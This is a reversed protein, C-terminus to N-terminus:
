TVLADPEVLGVHSRRPGRGPRRGRPDGDRHREADADPLGPHRLDADPDPRGDATPPRHDAGRDDAGPDAPDADAGDTPTKTPRGTNSPTETPTPTKTPKPPLPRSTARPRTGRRRRVGARPFDEEEVGEMDRTMIATWTKAPYNGGFYGDRGDSSAPLWGDLKGTGKGRVYMVSTALQPTFGTFWSSSVDGNSVTATGTKGAAPRGLEQAETGCGALVVQQM